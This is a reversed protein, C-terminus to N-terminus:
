EGEPMDIIPGDEVDDDDCPASVELGEIHVRVEGMPAFGLKLLDEYELLDGDKLFAEINDVSLPPFAAQLITGLRKYVSEIAEAAVELDTLQAYDHGKACIPFAMSAECVRTNEAGVAAAYCLNYITLLSMYRVQPKLPTHQRLVDYIGLMSYPDMILESVQILPILADLGETQRQANKKEVEFFFQMLAVPSCLNHKIYM